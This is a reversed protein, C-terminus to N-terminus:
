GAKQIKQKITEVAKSADEIHPIGVNKKDCQIVVTGLMQQALKVDKLPIEFDSLIPIVNYNVTKGQIRDSLVTLYIKPTLAIGMIGLICMYAGLIILVLLVIQENPRLGYYSNGETVYTFVAVIVFMIGVLAFIQDSMRPKAKARFTQGSLNAGSARSNEMGGQRELAVPNGCKPCWAAGEDM